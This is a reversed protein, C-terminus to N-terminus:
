KKLTISYESYFDTAKSQVALKILNNDSSIDESPEEFTVYFKSTANPKLSLSIPSINVYNKLEGFVKIEYSDTIRGCNNVDIEIRRSSESFDLTTKSIESQACYCEKEELLSIKTSYLARTPKNESSVFVTCFSDKGFEKPITYRLSFDREEGSDLIFIPLACTQVGTM